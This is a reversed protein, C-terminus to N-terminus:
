KMSVCSTLTCVVDVLAVYLFMGSAIIFMWTQAETFTQALTIGLYLGVFATAGSVLQFLAVKTTSWGTALMLAVDGSFIVPPKAALM